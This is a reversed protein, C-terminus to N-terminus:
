DEKTRFIATDSSVTQKTRFVARDSSVTQKTRFVARDAERAGHGRCTVPGLEQDPLEGGRKDKTESDITSESDLGESSILVFVFCLFFSVMAVAPM